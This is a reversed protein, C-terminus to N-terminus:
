TLDFVELFDYPMNNNFYVYAYYIPILVVFSRLCHRRSLSLSPKQKEEYEEKSAEFTSGPDNAATERKAKTVSKLTRSSYILLQTASTTPM